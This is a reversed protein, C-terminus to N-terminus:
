DDDSWGLEARAAAPILHDIRDLAFTPQHAEDLAGAEALTSDGTLVLASVMGTNVAMGVDTGLRDGVMM